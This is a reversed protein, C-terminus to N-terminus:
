RLQTTLRQQTAIPLQELVAEAEPSNSLRLALLANYQALSPQSESQDLMAAIRQWQEREGHSALVAASTGGSNDSKLHEFLLSQTVPQQFFDMALLPLAVNALRPQEASLTLLDFYDDAMAAQLAGSYLNLQEASLVNTLRKALSLDPREQLLAVVLPVQFAEIRHQQLWHAFAQRAAAPLQPWIQRLQEAAEPQNALEVLTEGQNLRKILAQQQQIRLWKEELAAATAAIDFVPQKESTLIQSLYFQWDRSWSQETDALHPQSLLKLLQKHVVWERAILQSLQGTEELLTPTLSLWSLEADRISRQTTGSQLQAALQDRELVLGGAWLLPSFIVLTLILFRIM